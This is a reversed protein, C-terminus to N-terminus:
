RALLDGAAKHGAALAQKNLEETGKPVRDLVATELSEYSVCGTIRQFAGLTVINAVVPRLEVRAIELLPLQYVTHKIDAEVEVTEDVILIADEALEGKYKNYSDQTLSVLVNPSIVKPYHIENDSIIVEARSSGGRAEPGYSQSQIANKEDYLAAEALIIGALILGQGGAGSLRVELQKKM